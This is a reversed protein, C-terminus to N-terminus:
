ASRRKEAEATGLTAELWQDIRAAVNEWGHDLMMAHAMGPFIEATTRYTGATAHLAGEFIFQDKEAGLVLVPVDLLPLSPPLDLGLLDLNILLSEEQFRPMYRRVLEEPTEESFLAQSIEKAEASDPGMTQAFSLERLLRPNTFAMGFLTGITGHPPASAMLVAAPLSRRHLCKQVIMGGLSHGIIVPPVALTDLVQECDAVYDRLRAFRVKEAGESAGHGRLSLAHVEWGHEAFYPLFHQDWVWAGGYAGHVFLLPTARATGKPRRTIVELKMDM